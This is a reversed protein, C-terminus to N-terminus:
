SQHHDPQRKKAAASVAQEIQHYGTCRCLNGSIARKIEEATPDPNEKLLAYASLIMGPTCFGCQVAGAAVFAEQLTRVEGGRTLGEITFVAKGEVKGAPVLCANVACGDLLVTCVGCEGKGCGEKTGTLELEDRLLHLLSGAPDALLEVPEHNLVFRISQKKM